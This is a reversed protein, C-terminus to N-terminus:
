NLGISGANSVLELIGNQIEMLNMVWRKDETTLLVSGSGQHSCHLARELRLEIQQHISFLMQTDRLSLPLQFVELLNNKKQAFDSYFDEITM